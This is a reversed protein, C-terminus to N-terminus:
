EAALSAYHRYLEMYEQYQKVSVLPPTQHDCSAVFGGQRMVPLLRKFEQEVVDRGCDMVTKDFGGLMLLSPHDKRLRAVDVGARRELPFIGEMGAEIFWNVCESIDGDSDIFIRVNNEKLLPIIKQYYPAVFEEFQAKSLMPGNNYSLDEAFSMFDPRYGRRFIEELSRLCFDAQDENMKKMLDPADYFSYLHEEIGFLTRPFWFFGDLVVRYIADGNEHEQRHKAFRSFDLAQLNHIFGQKKFSLYEDMTSVKVGEGDAGVPYGPAQPRAWLDVMLDLGFYKQVDDTDLEPDLGEERWRKLTLDWWPAWEVMPMRDVKQFNLVRNFRERVSLNM